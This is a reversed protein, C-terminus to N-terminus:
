SLPQKIRAMTEPSIKQSRVLEQGADETAQLIGKLKEKFDPFVMTEAAPRYIEAILKKKYLFNVYSSLQDFVSDEAFGAVSVVVVAPPDVRLPHYSQGEHQKIDRKAIPLTREIFTKMTANVTFHYLPTALVVLDSDIFKPYLDNTMDDKQACVGPTEDSWCKFCGVCNKIDRKRLHVIEVEAGASRMGEVLANMMRETKSQGGGRPSSNLALVKM